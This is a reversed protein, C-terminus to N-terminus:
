LIVIFPPASKTSQELCSMVEERSRVVGYFVERLQREFPGLGEELRRSAEGLEGAVVEARARGVAMAEMLEKGCREVGLLEVLVGGKRGRRWEEGIREQLGIMAPAWALQRPPAVPVSVSGTLPFAVVLAWMTFVLVSSMTYVALALGNAASGADCGRPPILNATIAQLQKGASWTRLLSRPHLAEQRTDSCNKGLFSWARETTRRNSCAESHSSPEWSALLKALARRARNFQGEGLAVGQALLASTAIDAHRNWHHVLQLSQTLSNCIDLSKIARDLLDSLLKDVPAKSVLGSNQVLLNRFEGDISLFADFLKQLFPLSPLQLDLENLSTFAEAVRSQFLDIDHLEDEQVQDM